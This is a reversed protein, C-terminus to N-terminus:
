LAVAFFYHGDEDAMPRWKMKKEIMQALILDWGVM